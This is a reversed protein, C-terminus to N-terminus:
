SSDVKNKSMPERMPRSSVSYGLSVPWHDLQSEEEANPDYSSVTGVKKDHNRPVSSLNLKQNTKTHEPIHEGKCTITIKGKEICKQISLGGLLRQKRQKPFLVAKLTLGLAKRVQQLYYVM